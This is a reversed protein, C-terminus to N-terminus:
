ASDRLVMTTSYKLPRIPPLKERLYSKQILAVCDAAIQEQPQRITTLAPRTFSAMPFESAVNEILKLCTV